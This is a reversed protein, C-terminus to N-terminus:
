LLDGYNILEINHQSIYRRVNDSTMASLEDQWHYGWNYQNRLIEDSIGPHTMIEHAGSLSSVQKLISLLETEGLAGGNIMGWFYQTFYIGKDRISPLAQAAVTSLGCKGMIRVPNHVGNLFTIKENPVRIAKIKYRMAQELVIPLISPLVHMHQHGDIHTVNVGSEMIKSVQKTIETRVEDYNISGSYIRKMFEIYNDVFVGENTVLSPIESPDSVPAIGGVLAIHIGIGLKPHEKAMDVAENFAAGSALISTSTIAGKTHGVIIGENIASHLGFDDANIILKSM